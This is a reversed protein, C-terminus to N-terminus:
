SFAPPARPQAPSDPVALFVAVPASAPTEATRAASQFPAIPASHLVQVRDGGVICLKCHKQHKSAGDEAPAKEDSLDLTRIGGDVTCITTSLSLDKPQAQAILPWFANLAVAFVAIRAVLRNRRFSM